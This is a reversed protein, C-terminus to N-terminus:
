LQSSDYCYLAKMEWVHFGTDCIVLKIYILYKSCIRACLHGTFKLKNTGNGGNYNGLKKFHNMLM